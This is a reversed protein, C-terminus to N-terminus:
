YQKELEAVKRALGTRVAQFQPDDRLNCLEWGPRQDYDVYHIGIWGHHVAQKLTEIAKDKDGLIARTRSTYYLVFPHNPHAELAHQDTELAKERLGLHAYM